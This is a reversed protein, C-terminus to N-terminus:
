ALVQGCLLELVGLVDALYLTPDESYLWDLVYIHHRAVPTHTQTRAQISLSLRDAARFQM